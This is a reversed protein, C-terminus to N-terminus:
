EIRIQITTQAAKDRPDLALAVRDADLGRDLLAAMVARARREAEPAEAGASAVVVKRSPFRELARALDDLIALGRPQLEGTQEEFAAPTLLIAPVPNVSLGMTGARVDDARGAAVVRLLQIREDGDSGQALLGALAEMQEVTAALERNKGAFQRLHDASRGLDSQLQAVLNQAEEREKDLISAQYELEAIRQEAQDGRASCSRQEERAASLAAVSADLETRLRSREASEARLKQEAEDLRAQPVLCGSSLLALLAAAHRLRM